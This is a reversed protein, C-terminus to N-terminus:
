VEVRNWVNFWEPHHNMEKALDAVMEMFEWAQDFNGFHFTKTIGDRGDTLLEWGEEGKLGKTKKSLLDSLTTSREEPTLAKPTIHHSAQLQLNNSSSTCM